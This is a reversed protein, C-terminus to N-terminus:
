SKKRTSITSPPEEAQEWALDFSRRYAEAFLSSKILIVFPPSVGEFSILAVCSGFVYYATPPFYEKKQWRYESFATNPMYDDGEEQLTRVSFEPREKHLEKMRNRHIEPDKRYKSFLKGNHGYICIDGGSHKLHEYIFDYFEDFRSQGEFTEINRPKLKVGDNDTFEVGNEDFVRAIESLSGERAQTRGSEINAVTERSLHSRKGLETAEWGLLGRAARIQRPTIM